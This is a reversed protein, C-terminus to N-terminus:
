FQQWPILLGDKTFGNNISASPEFYNTKLTLISIIELYNFCHLKLLIAPNNPPPTTHWWLRASYNKM